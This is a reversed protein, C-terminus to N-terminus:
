RRGIMMDEWGRIRWVFVELGVWRKVEEGFAFGELVELLDVRLDDLSAKVIGV